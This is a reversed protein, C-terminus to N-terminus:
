IKGKFKTTEYNMKTKKNKNITSTKGLFSSFKIGMKKICKTTAKITNIAVYQSLEFDFVSDILDVDSLSNASYSINELRKLDDKVNLTTNIYNEHVMLTHMDNDMWYYRIKDEINNEQSLLQGTTEFINSSQINKSAIPEGKKIGLQLTNLIYRIDGNAEEYLNDVNRKNIKIGESTVVKYILAYVDAYRPKGLKIDICYNLIPKINQSYRDDCICIIPICSEKICQTLNTIFGYDGGNSDIDSFVLCNQQDDFTRKTKLLPKITREMTEKDKDDDIALNIINYDHKKLILEVLLSKGIGNVGSVLACKTKKNTPTWDLLWSIFPQIVNKNGVFDDLKNPRYKVTYM